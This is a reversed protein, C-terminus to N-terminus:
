KAFSRLPRHSVATAEAVTVLMFVVHEFVLLPIVETAQVTFEFVFPLFMYRASMAVSTAVMGFMGSVAVRSATVAHISLSDSCFPSQKIKVSM